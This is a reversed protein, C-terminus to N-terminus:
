LDLSCTETLKRAPTHGGDQAVGDDDRQRWRRAYAGVLLVAVWSLWSFFLEHTIKKKMDPYPAGSPSGKHWRLEAIVISHRLGFWCQDIQGIVYSHSLRSFWDISGAILHTESLVRSFRHSHNRNM